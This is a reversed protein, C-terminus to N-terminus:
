LLVHGIQRLALKRDIPRVGSSMNGAVGYREPDDTLLYFVRLRKVGTLVAKPYKLVVKKFRKEALQIMEERDGFNMAGTPCTKVCAPLLGKHIRDVCMTCKALSGKILDLRPIDYPCAYRIDEAHNKKVRGNFVVAGTLYDVTVVSPAIIDAMDKCPPHLCHRCQDPFFYWVPSGDSKKREKFRILKYTESGLDYPNQYSGNNVTETAQLQNWQKCAIQCSRCATCLSTDIFFAKGGM